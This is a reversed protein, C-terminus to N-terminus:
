NMTANEAIFKIAARRSVVAVNRNVPPNRKRKALRSHGFVSLRTRETDIEDMAKIM